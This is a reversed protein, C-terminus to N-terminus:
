RQSIGKEKKLQYIAGRLKWTEEKSAGSICVLYPREGYKRLIDAGSDNESPTLFLLRGGPLPLARCIAQLTADYYPPEPEMGLLKGWAAASQQPNRVSIAVYELRLRGLPHDKIMGQRRLDNQRQKDTHEWQIFFPMRLGSAGDRIFFMKWRLVTGDTRTRSGAFPGTVQYGLAQAREAAQGINYSRIGIRALGENEPLDAAAQRALDNDTVTLALDPHDVGLFEIYSLDFYCLSNYTGWREHRGGRMASIGRQRLEDVCRDPDNVLHVLHDFYFQLRNM